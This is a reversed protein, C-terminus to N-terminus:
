IYMCIYLAVSTQFHQLIHVKILRTIEMTNWDSYKFGTNRIYNTGNVQRHWSKRFVPNPASHISAALWFTDQVSFATAGLYLKRGMETVAM